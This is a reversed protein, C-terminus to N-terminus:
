HEHSAEANLTVNTYVINAPYYEFFTNLKSKILIPQVHFHTTVPQLDQILNLIVHVIHNSRVHFHLTLPRSGSDGQSHEPRAM